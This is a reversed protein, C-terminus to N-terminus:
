SFPRDLLSGCLALTHGGGGGVNALITLGIVVFEVHSGLREGTEKREWYGAVGGSGDVEEEDHESRHVWHWEKGMHSSPISANFTEHVLVSVHSPAELSIAGRLKMGVRPRWVCCEVAVKSTAFAGDGDILASGRARSGTREEDVLFYSQGHSVLVGNLPPVFRMVLSDLQEGVAITPNHAHIPPISLTLIPYQIEFAS